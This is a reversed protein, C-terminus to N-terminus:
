QPNFIFITNLTSLYGMIPLSSKNKAFLLFRMCVLNLSKIFTSFHQCKRVFLWYMAKSIRFFFFFVAATNSGFHIRLLLM